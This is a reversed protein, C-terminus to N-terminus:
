LILQERLGSFRRVPRGLGYGFINKSGALTVEKGARTVGTYLLERCLVKNEKDPLVLLVEDFESGQSKHITIAFATEHQPLRSPFYGKYNGQGNEFWIKLSGDVPDPLCIGIDGNYVGLTYDNRTVMIPRGPYWGGPIIRYEGGPGASAALFIEVQRNIGEVGREGYHVACLTQFTSFERFVTEPEVTGDGLWVSRSMYNRYKEGIFDLYDGQLLIVNAINDDEFLRWAGATDGRNIARSLEKIGSDFRWTKKLEITNQPLSRICDGLVAGSEVSVLQDRDGLLVLRATPKLSDVLKSMLALDVMSAEDVVLLDYPLPNDGNHRFGSSNRKVGLLRHLTMAKGPIRDALESPLGLVAMGSSVAYQLRMAAKGTPACLGIAMERDVVQLLVALLKVITTTKGTGPGGSIITLGKQVACKVAEKQWDTEDGNDGFYRDLFKEAKGDVSYEFTALRRLQSALRSEYLFYKQLYLRGRFLVLPFDGTCKNSFGVVSPRKAATPDEDTRQSQAKHDLWAPKDRVLRVRRLFQKETQTVELCTHGQGMVEGLRLVIDHFNAKDRGTLQSRGALFRALHHELLNQKRESSM